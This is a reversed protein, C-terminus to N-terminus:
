PQMQEPRNRQQVLVDTTLAIAAGSIATEVACTLVGASDVIGRAIMDAAEGREVDFGVGSGASALTLAPDFGANDLLVRYPLELARLVARYAARRDADATQALARELAARCDLLAVGGGTVVGSRLAARMASATRQALDRYNNAQAESDAGVYLTASGGMLKGIRAQLPQRKEATQEARARERLRAIHQRLGRPSGKGGIVGHDRATAWVQRAHGLDDPRLENLTQGAAQFLPRGGVLAALDELAAAQADGKVAGARIVLTPLIDQNKPNLFLSMARDSVQGALIALAKAGSGVAIELLPRFQEPADFSLDSILIAANELAARTQGPALQARSFLGGDWYAGEFYEREMERRNGPKIELAGLEGIIDFIEGLLAAMREHYCLTRALGTLRKQGSIPATQAALAALVITKAEDLAARLGMPSGGATLYRLGDNYISQYLLAATATGDGVSEHIRWLAHRILMAGPDSARDELEVVRRAILGGNDLLEPPRNRDVGQLAVVRCLPGLTPRILDAIQNIGRQLRLATEPQFVVRPYRNEFHM